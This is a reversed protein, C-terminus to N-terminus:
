EVVSISGKHTQLLFNCSSVDKNDDTPQRAAGAESENFEETAAEPAGALFMM